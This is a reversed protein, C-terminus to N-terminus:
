CLASTGIRVVVVKKLRKDKIQVSGTGPRMCTLSGQLMKFSPLKLCSMGNIQFFDAELKYKPYVFATQLTIQLLSKHTLTANYPHQGLLVICQCEDLATHRDAM